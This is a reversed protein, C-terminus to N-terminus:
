MQLIIFLSLIIDSVKEKVHRASEFLDRQSFTDRPAAQCAGGAKVLDISAQGLEHVSHSLLHQCLHLIFRNKSM